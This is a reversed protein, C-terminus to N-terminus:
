FTGSYIFEIPLPVINCFFKPPTDAYFRTREHMHAAIKNTIFCFYNPLHM